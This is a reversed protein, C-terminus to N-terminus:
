IMYDLIETYDKISDSLYINDLDAVIDVRILDKMNEQLGRLINELSSKSIGFILYPGGAKNDERYFESVTLNYKNKSIAYRYLSYLIAIPHIDDSGIKRIYKIRGRKEIFGVRIEQYYPVNELMNLLSNIGSSATRINMKEKETLVRILETSSLISNWNLSQLYWKVVSSNYFLNIWIVQYFLAKNVEYVEKLKLCLDTPTKEKVRILESDKLWQIMSDLQKNGLNNKLFWDNLNLIYDELWISRMGFTLYRGFGRLGKDKKMTKGVKDISKALM